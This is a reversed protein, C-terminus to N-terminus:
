PLLSFSPEALCRRLTLKLLHAEGQFVKTEFCPINNDNNCPRQQQLDELSGEEM